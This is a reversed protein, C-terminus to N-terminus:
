KEIVMSMKFSQIDSHGINHEVLEIYTEKIENTSIQKSVVEYLRTNENKNKIIKRIIRIKNLIEETIEYVKVM